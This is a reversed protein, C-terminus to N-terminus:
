QTCTGSHNTANTSSSAIVAVLRKETEENPSNSYQNAPILTAAIMTKMASPESYTVPTHGWLLMSKELRHDCPPKKGSPTPATVTATTVTIKEMTPGSIAVIAAASDASGSRAIALAAFETITRIATNKTPEIKRIAAMRGHFSSLLVEGKTAANVLIPM